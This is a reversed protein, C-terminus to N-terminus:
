PDSHEHLISVLGPLLRAPGDKKRTSRKIGYLRFNHFVIRKMFEIVAEIRKSVGPARGRKTRTRIMALERAAKVCARPCLRETSELKPFLGNVRM